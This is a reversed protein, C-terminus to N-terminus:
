RAAPSVVPVYRRRNALTADLPDRIKPVSLDSGQNIAAEHPWRISSNLQSGLVVRVTISGRTGVMPHRSEWEGRFARPQQCDRLRCRLLLTAQMARSPRVLFIM